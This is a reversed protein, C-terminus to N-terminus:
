QSKIHDLDPGVTLLSNLTQCAPEYQGKRPNFKSLQGEVSVTSRRLEKQNGNPKGEGQAATSEQSQDTRYSLRCARYRGDAFESKM